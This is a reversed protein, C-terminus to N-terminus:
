LAALLTEVNGVINDIESKTYAGISGPTINVSKEESGDFTFMNTGETTGGNLKIVLAERAGNLTSDDSCLYLTGDSGVRVASVGFTPAPFIANFEAETGIWIQATGNARIEKIKSFVANQPDSVYGQELALEIASLIQEKSMGETFCDDKNVVYFTNEAM